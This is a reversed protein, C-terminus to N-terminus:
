YSHMLAEGRAAKKRKEREKMGGKKRGKKRGMM